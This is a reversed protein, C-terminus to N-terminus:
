DSPREKLRKFCREVGKATAKLEKATPGMGIDRGIM